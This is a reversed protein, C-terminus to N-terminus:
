ISSARERGGGTTNGPRIKPEPKGLSREIEKEKEGGISVEEIENKVVCVMPTCEKDECV